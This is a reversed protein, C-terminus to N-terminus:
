VSGFSGKHVKTEYVCQNMGASGSNQLLDQLGQEVYVHGPVQLKLVAQEAMLTIGVTEELEHHESNVMRLSFRGASVYYECKGMVLASREGLEECNEMVLVSKEGLAECNGLVVTVVFKHCEYKWMVMAFKQAPEKYSRMGPGNGQDPECCKAM